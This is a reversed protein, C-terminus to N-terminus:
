VAECEKACAACAEMCRKCVDHHNEHKKCAAECDRCIKACVAAFAKLHSSKSSSLVVLARCAALTDRVTQACDGMTKDGKALQDLCHTLCEEGVEVCHNAAAALGGGSAKAASAVSSRLSSAAIAGMALTGHGFLERRNM